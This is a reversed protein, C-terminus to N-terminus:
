QQMVQLSVEHLRRCIARMRACVVDMNGAPQTDTGATMCMGLYGMM